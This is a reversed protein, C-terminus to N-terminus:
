IIRILKAYTILATTNLCNTKELINSRHTDITHSSIFLEKAIEKSTKGKALYSLIKKEQNSLPHVPDLCNKDFNFNWIKVEDPTTIVLNLSKEKKLYTIDQIYNLFLLPKNNNNFEICTSEQLFHMYDGNNKKCKGEFYVITKNQHKENNQFVYEFANQQSLLSKELFDPHMKSMAFNIGDEALYSATDYGLVGSEDAAYVYRHLSIDWILILMCNQYSIEELYPILKKWEGHYLESAEIGSQLRLWYEKSHESNNYNM